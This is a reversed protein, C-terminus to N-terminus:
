SHYSLRALMRARTAVFIPVTGGIADGVVELAQGRQEHTQRHQCRM